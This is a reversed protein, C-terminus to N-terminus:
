RALWRMVDGAFPTWLGTKVGARKLGAGTWANCTRVADYSGAGAFFRDQDTYGAHDIRQVRGSADRAFSASLYDVLDRYQPQTLTIRRALEDERPPGRWWTVHVASEGLGFAAVVAVKPTLHEWDPVNLYFGRDGWGIEVYEFDFGVREFQDRPVTQSWDVAQTRAPLVFDAHVGNSVVWVDVGEAAPTWDGNVPIRPLVLALLGYLAALAVVVLLLRLAWVLVRRRRRPQVSGEPTTSTAM